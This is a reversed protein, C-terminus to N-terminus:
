HQHNLIEDLLYFDSMKSLDYDVINNRVFNIFRQDVEGVEIIRVESEDESKIETIDDEIMKLVLSKLEGSKEMDLASFDCEGNVYVIKM